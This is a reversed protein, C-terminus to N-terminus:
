QPSGSVSQPSPRSSIKRFYKEASIAVPIGVCAVLIFAGITVSAFTMKLPPVRSLPLVVLNMIVWVILGYVIGNLWKNKELARVRQYLVFFLATWITAICYHFLIGWFAMGDGATFADSGFIGSSIYVFVKVPDGGRLLTHLCAALGDLTGILGGTIIIQKITKM